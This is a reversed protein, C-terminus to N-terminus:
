TSYFGNTDYTYDLVVNVANAPALCATFIAITLSNALVRFTCTSISQNSM